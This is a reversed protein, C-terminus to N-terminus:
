TVGGSVEQLVQELKHDDVKGAIHWLTEAVDHVQDLATQQREKRIKRNHEIHDAMRTKWSRRENDVSALLELVKQEVDDLSIPLSSPDQMNMCFWGLADYSAGIDGREYLPWRPDGQPWQCILSYRGAWEVYVIDLLSDLAKLKARIAEAQAEQRDARPESRSSRVESGDPGYLTM